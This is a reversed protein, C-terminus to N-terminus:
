NSQGKHTTFTGDGHDIDMKTALLQLMGGFNQALLENTDKFHRVMGTTDTLKKKQAAKNGNFDEQLRGRVRFRDGEFFACSWSPTVHCLFESFHTGRDPTNLIVSGAIDYKVLIAKIEEIAM